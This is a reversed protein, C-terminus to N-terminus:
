FQPEAQTCTARGRGKIPDRGVWAMRHDKGSSLYLVWPLSSLVRHCTLFAISWGCAYVSPSM